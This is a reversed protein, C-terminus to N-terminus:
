FALVEVRLGPVRRFHAEDRSGVLVGFGLEVATAAVQLDNAPIAEGRRRLLAYLEAWREAFARGFEVVPFVATVAAIQARRATARQVSGALEVGALLEAYVIAPVVVHERGFDRLKEEVRVGARELSIVASTDVVFGM